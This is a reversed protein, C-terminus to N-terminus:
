FELKFLSSGWNEREVVVIAALWGRLIAFRRASFILHEFLFGRGVVIRFKTNWRSPEFHSNTLGSVPWAHLLRASM